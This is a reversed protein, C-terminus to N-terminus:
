VYWDYGAASEFVPSKLPSVEEKLPTPSFRVPLTKLVERINQFPEIL